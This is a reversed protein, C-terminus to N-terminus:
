APPLAHARKPEDLSGQEEFDMRFLQAMSGFRPAHWARFDPAGPHKNFLIKGGIQPRKITTGPLRQM